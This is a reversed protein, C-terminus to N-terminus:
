NDGAHTAICEDRARGNTVKLKLDARVAVWEKGATLLKNVRGSTHFAVVLFICFLSGGSRGGSGIGKEFFYGREYRFTHLVNQGSMAPRANKNYM